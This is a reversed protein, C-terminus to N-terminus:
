WAPRTRPPTGRTARWRGRPRSCASSRRTAERAMESLKPEIKLAEALTMGLTAPIMKAIRDVDGYPMGMVRGVDRVVARAAM